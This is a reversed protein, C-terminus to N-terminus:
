SAHFLMNFVETSSIIAGTEEHDKMSEVADMLFGRLIALIMIPRSLRSLKRTLKAKIINKIIQVPSDM